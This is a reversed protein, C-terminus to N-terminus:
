GRRLQIVRYNEDGAAEDKFISWGDTLAQDILGYPRAHPHSRVRATFIIRDTAVRQLQQLALICDPPSLWRTLRIMLATHFENDAAPIKRVDGHYLQILDSEVKMSAEALMDSSVDAGIVQFKREQYYPIFRGTGIPIDLIKTMSPLDSLYEKIIRDEDHWKKQSERKKDYGAAVDGTYKDAGQPNDDTYKFTM